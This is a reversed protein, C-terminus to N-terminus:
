QNWVLERPIAEVARKCKPCVLTYFFKHPDYWLEEPKRLRMAYTLVWSDHLCFPCFLNKGVWEQQYKIKPDNNQRPGSNLELDYDDFYEIPQGWLPALTTTSMKSKKFIGILEPTFDFQAPPTFGPPPGDLIELPEQRGWLDVWARAFMQADLYMVPEESIFLAQFEVEKDWKALFIREKSPELTNFPVAIQVKVKINDNTWYAEGYKVDWDEGQAREAFNNWTAM